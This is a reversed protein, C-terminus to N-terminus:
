GIKNFNQFPQVEYRIECAPRGDALLCSTYWLSLLADTNWGFDDSVATKPLDLLEYFETLSMAWSHNIQYNIQNVADEVKQRTAKFPRASWSDYFIIDGDNLIITEVGAAKSIRDKAVDSRVMEEKDGGLHEIVKDRYEEAMRESIAFGAALATARRTGIRNAGVIAVLTIAGIVAPPIFQKWVLEATERKTLPDRDMRQEPIRAEAILLASSYAARGTLVVTAVTGVAGVVTLITPSNQLAFKQASRLITKLTM